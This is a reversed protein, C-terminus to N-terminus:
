MNQIYEELADTWKRMQIGTLRYLTDTSLSSYTPRKAPRNLTASAIGTLDQDLGVADCFRKGMELRNTEGENVVNILGTLQNSITYQIVQAIDVSYTPNSIEDDILSTISGAKVGNAVWNFFDAGSKGFVWAVRLVTSKSYMLAVNDGGLKSLGYVNLPNTQDFESYQRQTDGDFVFDTSIHILHANVNAAADALNKVGLSNVSFASNVQEECADVNTMAATNVIVGPQFESVINFVSDRSTIDVSDRDCPLVEYNGIKSFQKQAALGVQGDAGTILIKM